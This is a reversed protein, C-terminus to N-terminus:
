VQELTSHLMQELKQNFQKETTGGRINDVIVHFLDTDSSEDRVTIENPSFLDLETLHYVVSIKMQPQLGTLTGLSTVDGTVNGEINAFSTGVTGLISVPQLNPCHIKLYDLNEMMEDFGQFLGTIYIKHVLLIMPFSVLTLKDDSGTNIQGSFYHIM